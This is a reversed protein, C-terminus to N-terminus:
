RCDSRRRGGRLSGRSGRHRGRYEHRALAAEVSYGGPNVVPEGFHCRPDLVVSANNHVLPRYLSALGSAPDFQLDDLFMEVVSSFMRNGSRKGTLQVYQDEITDRDTPLRIIIEGHGRGQQDSFLFITHKRALPYDIGYRQRAADVGQRVKGLSLNHRNRVERVALTQIFDLFTVVKESTDDLQRHIAPRGDRDGFVWRTMMRQSVRAYFAAEAPTYLGVGLKDALAVM